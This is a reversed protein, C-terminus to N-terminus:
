TGTRATSADRVPFKIVALRRQQGPGSPVDFYETVNDVPCRGDASRRTARDGCLTLLVGQADAELPIERLGRVPDKRLAVM